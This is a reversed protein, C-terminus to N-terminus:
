VGLYCLMTSVSVCPASISRLLLFLAVPPHLRFLLPGLILSPHARGVGMEEALRWFSVLREKPFCKQVGGAGLTGRFVGPSLSSLPPSHGKWTSGCQVSPSFTLFGCFTGAMWWIDRASPRRVLSCVIGSCIGEKTTTKFIGRFGERFSLGLGGSFCPVAFPCCPPAPRPQGPM